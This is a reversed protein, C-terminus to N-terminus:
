GAQDAMVADWDPLIMEIEPLAQGLFDEMDELAREQGVDGEPGFTGIEIKAFYAHTEFLNQLRKRVGTIADHEYDGNVHFFYAVRNVPRSSGVGGTSEQFAGFSVPM